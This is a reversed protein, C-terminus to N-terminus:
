ISTARVRVASGGDVRLTTATMKRRLDSIRAAAGDVTVLTQSTLPISETTGDRRRLTV